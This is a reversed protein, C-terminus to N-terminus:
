LQSLDFTLPTEQSACCYDPKLVHFCNEQHEEWMQETYIILLAFQTLKALHKSTTSNDGVGDEHGQGPNM